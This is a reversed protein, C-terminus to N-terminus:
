DKTNEPAVKPLLVVTVKTGLPPIRDTWADFMLAETSQSSAIPLDLTASPFNSVCVLDGDEARYYRETGDPSEWFGSGAFVWNVDLPKQTRVDRIWDQARAHQRRGKEDTWFLHIAVETGSASRFEPQFQVPTGAEAGVALLAAHVLYAKTKISLISEHEKTGELCAFMELPGQRLCVQGNMVVRKLKPDIWVDYNPDLRTLGPPDNTTPAPQPPEDALATAALWTGAMVATFAM